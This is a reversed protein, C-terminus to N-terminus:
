NFQSDPLTGTYITQCSFLTLLTPLNTPQNTPQYFHGAIAQANFRLCKVAKLETQQM